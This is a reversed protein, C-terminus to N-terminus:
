EVEDSKIKEQFTSLVTFMRKREEESVLTLLDKAIADLTKKGIAIIEHTTPSLTIRVARRDEPCQNRELLKKQVLTEVLESTTAASLKIREALEKLPIGEPREMTLEKVEKIVKHQRVTLSALMESSSTQAVFAIERLRDGIDFILFLLRESESLNERM